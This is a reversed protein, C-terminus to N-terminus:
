CHVPHLTTSMGTFVHALVLGHHPDVQKLQLLKKILEELEPLIMDKCMPENQQKLYIIMSKPAIGTHVWCNVISTSTVQKRAEIVYSICTLLDINKYTTEAELHFLIWQIFSRRYHAKFSKILGADMPQLESTTNPPLFHVKVNSLQLEVHSSANDILLLISRGCMQLKLKKLWDCFVESTM